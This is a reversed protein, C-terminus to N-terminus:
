GIDQEKQAWAILSSGFPLRFGSLLSVELDNIVRGIRNMWGRPSRELKPMSNRNLRRSIMVASFLLFQYHTYGLLKWGTLDLEQEIQGIRYRCRHGAAEDAGSWLVDFAPVSVLLKGGRKVLRRAESLLALPEVHELVDLAVVVDFQNRELPVRSADSHILWPRGGRRACHELMRFHGDVGVCIDAMEEAAALFSGSGRGLEILAPKGSPLLRRLLRTLLNLRPSFWFHDKELELL